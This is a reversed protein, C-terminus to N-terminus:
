DSSWLSDPYRRIVLTLCVFHEPSFCITNLVSPEIPSLKCKFAPGKYNACKVLVSLKLRPRPILIDAESSFGKENHQVLYFVSVWLWSIHKHWKIIHSIVKRPCSHGFYSGANAIRTVMLSWLYKDPDTLIDPRVKHAIQVLEPFPTVLGGDGVGAGTGNNEWNNLM